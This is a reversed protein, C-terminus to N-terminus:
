LKMLFEIGQRLEALPRAPDEREVTFYGRYDRAALERVIGPWDMEGQGIPVEQFGSMTTSTRYADKVHVGIMFERLLEIAEVLNVGQPLLNAPDFNIALTPSAVRQLLERLREPSDRGTEIALISGVREAERVVATLADRFDFPPAALDAPVAGISSVVHSAGIAHALALVASLYGVRAELGRPEDLGRRMPAGLAVLAMNHSRLLHALHRRGTQSLQQPALEGIADLEVGHAGLRAATAIAEKVPQGISELRLAIKRWVVM